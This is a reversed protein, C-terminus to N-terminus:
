YKAKIKSLVSASSKKTKTKVTKKKPPAIRAKIAAKNVSKQVSTQDKIAEINPISLRGINISVVQKKAIKIVKLTM